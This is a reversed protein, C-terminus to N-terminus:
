RPRSANRGCSRFLSATLLGRPGQRLPTGGSKRPPPNGTRNQHRRARTCFGADKSAAKADPAFLSVLLPAFDLDGRGRQAQFSVCFWPVPRTQPSPLSASDIRATRRCMMPNSTLSCFTLSSHDGSTPVSLGPTTLVFVFRLFAQFCLRKALTFFLPRLNLLRSM